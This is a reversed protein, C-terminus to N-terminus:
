SIAHALLARQRPSLGGIARTPSIASRRLVTNVKVPGYHPTALMLEAVKATHLWDPPELLLDALQARGAKLDRKLQARRARIENAQRLAALRQEPTRSPAALTQTTV